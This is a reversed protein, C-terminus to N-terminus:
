GIGGDKGQNSFYKDLDGRPSFECGGEANTVTSTCHKDNFQDNNQKCRFRSASGWDSVHDGWLPMCYKSL